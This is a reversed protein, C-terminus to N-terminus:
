DLNKGIFYKILLKKKIIKFRLNILIDILIINM